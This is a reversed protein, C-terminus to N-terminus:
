RQALYAEIADFLATLHEPQADGMHAIRFVTNKVKGYGNAIEMGHDKLFTSLDKYDVNLTNTLVTLTPSQYGEQAYLGFGVSLCWERTMEAMQQHRAERNELGEALIDDLQRDAAFMLSVPPTAPTNNKKHHDDIVIFDFYYGRNTVSNARELAKPSVAGFAM